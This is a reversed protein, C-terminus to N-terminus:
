GPKKLHQPEHSEKHMDAIVKMAKEWISYPEPDGPYCGNNKLMKAIIDPNDITSMDIEEKTMRFAM